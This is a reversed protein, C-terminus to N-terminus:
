SRKSLHKELKRARDIAPGEGFEDLEFLRRIQVEGEKFPVRKAWEIAEEKSSVQIVWYGAILEKAEAFPGDIVTRKSGDYTVRAGKSSPHLGTGDLMVGAKAMEENFRTMEDLAAEDPLTGAEADENSMVALLFRM